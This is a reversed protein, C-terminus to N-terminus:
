QYHYKDRSFWNRWFPRGEKTTGPKSRPLVLKPDALFNRYYGTPYIHDRPDLAISDVISGFLTSYRGYMEHKASCSVVYLKDGYLSAIMFGYMPVMMGHGDNQVFGLRIATADGRDGFSAPAYYDSIAAKEVNGIRRDWFDRGLKELVAEDVLNKTYIQARGDPEVEVKCSAMDEAIPGVIRLRTNPSDVTQERWVDPFSISYKHVPDKWVFTDAAATGAFAGALALSLVTVMFYRRM